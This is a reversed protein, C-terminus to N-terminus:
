KQIKTKNNTELKKSNLLFFVNRVNRSKKGFNKFNTELIKRGLKKFNEEQIERWIKLNKLFFDQMEQNTYFKNGLKKTFKKRLIKIILFSLKLNKIIKRKKNIFFFKKQKFFQEQTFKKSNGGIKEKLKTSQFKLFIKM